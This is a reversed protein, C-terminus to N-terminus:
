SIKGAIYLFYQASLFDRDRGAWASGLRRWKLSNVATRLTRAPPYLCLSAGVPQIHILAVTLPLADPVETLKPDRENHPESNTGGALVM